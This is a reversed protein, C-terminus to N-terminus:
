NALQTHKVKRMTEWIDGATAGRDADAPRVRLM